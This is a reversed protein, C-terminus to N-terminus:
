IKMISMIEGIPIDSQGKEHSLELDLELLARELLFANLWIKISNDDEPLFSEGRSNDVYSKLFTEGVLERWLKMSSSILETEEAFSSAKRLSIRAARNLSYLMSAVDRLSSRKIKREGLSKTMDGEFGTILFDKGTFLVHGLHYNGHIRIKQAKVKDQYILRIKDLIDNKIKMVEQAQTALVESLSGIKYSLTRISHGLENRM